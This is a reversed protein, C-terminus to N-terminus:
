MNDKARNQNQKYVQLSTMTIINAIDILYM